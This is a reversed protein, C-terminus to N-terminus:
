NAELHEFQETAVRGAESSFPSFYMLGPQLIMWTLIKMKKKKLCSFFVLLKTSLSTPPRHLTALFSIIHNIHDFYAM